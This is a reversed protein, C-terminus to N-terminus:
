PLHTVMVETVLHLTYSFGFLWLGAPIGLSLTASSWGLRGTAVPPVASGSVLRRVRMELLTPVHFASWMTWRTWAPTGASAGAASIPHLTGACGLRAVKVLASALMVARHGDGMVACADAECEAEAQWQEELQRAVRTWGFLDPACFMLFRKLNDQSRRHAVEHSIAVDLEAPTLASLAESGILIRPRWIGALSVGPLGSLEFAGGQEDGEVLNGARRALGTFRHGALGAQGARWAGGLALLLGIAALGGLILGFSEGTDAPEFRWHAPLFVALVFVSSAGAPLLRATLLMSAGVRRPPPISFRGLMWAGLMWAILSAAANVAAFWVLGLFVSSLLLSM